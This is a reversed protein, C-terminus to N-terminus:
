SLTRLKNCYSLELKELNEIYQLCELDESELENNCDLILHTLRRLLSVVNLSDQKILLYTCDMVEVHPHVLCACAIWRPDLVENTVGLDDGCDEEESNM